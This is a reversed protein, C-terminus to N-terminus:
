THLLAATVTYPQAKAIFHRLITTSFSSAAPFHSPQVQRFPWASCDCSLFWSNGRHLVRLASFMESGLNYSGAFNVCCVVLQLLHRSHRRLSYGFGQRRFCRARVM